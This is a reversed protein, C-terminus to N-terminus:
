TRKNTSIPLKQQMIQTCDACFWKGKPPTVIGVCSYHFWERRCQRNDCAIMDGYSMENCFCYRREDLNENSQGPFNPLLNTEDDFLSTLTLSNKLNGSHNGPFEDSDNPNFSPSDSLFSLPLLSQKRRNLNNGEQLRKRGRSSQKRNLLCPSLGLHFSSNSANKRRVRCVMQCVVHKYVDMRLIMLFHM